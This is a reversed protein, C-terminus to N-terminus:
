LFTGGVGAGMGGGQFIAPGLHLRRDFLFRLPPPAHAATFVATVFLGIGLAIDGPDALQAADRFLLLRDLERRQALPDESADPPAFSFSARADASAPPPAPHVAPNGGAMEFDFSLFDHQVRRSHVEFYSPSLDLDLQLRAPPPRVAEELVLRPAPGRWALVFPATARSARARGARGDHLRGAAPSPPWIAVLLFAMMRWHM